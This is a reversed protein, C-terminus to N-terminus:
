NIKVDATIEDSGLTLSSNGFQISVSQISYDTRYAIMYIGLPKDINEIIYKRENNKLIAHDSVHHIVIQPTSTYYIM